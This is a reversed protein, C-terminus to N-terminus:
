GPPVLFSGTQWDPLYHNRIGDDAQRFFDMTCDNQRLRHLLGGLVAEPVPTPTARKQHERQLRGLDEGEGLAGETLGPTPESHTRVSSSTASPSPPKCAGRSLRRELPRPKM